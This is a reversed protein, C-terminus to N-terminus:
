RGHNEHYNYKNEASKRACCAEFFDDFHGINIRKVEGREETVNIRVRWKQNDNRWIVGMIGSTNNKQRAKNRLNEIITTLRLNSIRNDSKIGNIHDIQYKDSDYRGYCYLWVIQHEAYGKNLIGVWRYGVSEEYHGVRKGVQSLITSLGGQQYLGDPPYKRVLHGTDPYYDFLSHLLEQTINSHIKHSM